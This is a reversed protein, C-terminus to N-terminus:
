IKKWDTFIHILEVKKQRGNKLWFVTATAQMTDTDSTTPNLSEDLPTLHIYRYFVSPDSSASVDHTFITTDGIRNKHLQYLDQNSVIISEVNWPAGGPNFVPSVKITKEGTLSEGWLVDGENFSYNSKWNSDRINRVAEIGERALELAQIRNMNQKNLDISFVTLSLVAVTGIILITIGIILEILTFAKHYTM